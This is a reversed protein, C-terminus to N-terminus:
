IRGVNTRLLGLVEDLRIALQCHSPRHRRLFSDLDPDGKTKRDSFPHLVVVFDM